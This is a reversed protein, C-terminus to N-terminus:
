YLPSLLFLTNSFVFLINNFIKTSSVILSFASFSYICRFFLKQIGGKNGYDDFVRTATNETSEASAVDFSNLSDRNSMFDTMIHIDEESQLARM